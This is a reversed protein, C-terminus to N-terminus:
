TYSIGRKISYIYHYSRIHSHYRQGSQLFVVSMQLTLCFYFALLVRLCTMGHRRLVNPRKSRQVGGWRSCGYTGSRCCWCCGARRCNRVDAVGHSLLGHIHHHCFNYRQEDERDQRNQTTQERQSQEKVGRVQEGAVSVRDVVQEATQPQERSTLWYCTLVSCM